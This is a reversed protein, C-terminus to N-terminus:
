EHPRDEDGTIERCLAGVERAASDRMASILAAKFTREDVLLGVRCPLQDACMSNLAVWANNIFDNNM